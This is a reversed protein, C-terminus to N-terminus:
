LLLRARQLLDELEMGLCDPTEKVAAQKVLFVIKLTPSLRGVFKEIAASLKRKVEHRIVSRRDVKKSVIFAFQPLNTEPKKGYQVLLGFSSSDYRRGTQRIADFEQKLPILQKRPLM